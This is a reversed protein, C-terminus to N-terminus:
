PRAGLRTIRYTVSVRTGRTVRDGDEDVDSKRKDIAHTWKYRSDGTMIYASRRPVVVDIMAGGTTREAFRMVIDSGLSVTMVFDGFKVTDDVHPAIGQGPTYQNIIVQDPKRSTTIGAAVAADYLRDCVEPIPAAKILTGSPLYPYKYGYHQTARSLTNDWGAADIDALAQTETAEDIIDFAISLGPIDDVTVVPM